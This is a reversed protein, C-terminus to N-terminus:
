LLHPTRACKSERAAELPDRLLEALDDVRLRQELTEGRTGEQEDVRVVRGDIAAATVLEHDDRAGAGALADDAHM